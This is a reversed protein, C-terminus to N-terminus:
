RRSKASVIQIVDDNELIYSDGLRQKTRANLAFIFSEALETHIMAALQKSTTGVPVLFCDPLVQGQHNSLKEANEVPYVTIMNLLSFFAENIVEQLGTGGWKGFVREKIRELARLQGATLKEPTKIKFDSDGPTYDVLGMEAARRLALEAEACTPVVKYGAERIRDINLEAEDRDAKNAAVIL